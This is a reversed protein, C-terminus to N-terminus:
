AGDSDSRRGRGRRTAGRPRRWCRPVYGCGLRLCEDPGAPRKPFAEAGGAATALGLAYATDLLAAGDPTSRLAHVAPGGRLFMVEGDADGGLALRYAALQDAHHAAAVPTPLAYKYDRVVLRGARRAVLDMRGHIFVRPAGAPLPLVFPVERGVVELGAAIEARLAAAAARLDATLRAVAEAELVVSEPRAAVADRIDDGGARALDITELVGHAAKGLLTARTGGTGGEPLGLVQRYFFQRPCRRFDALATPTTVIETPAPPRFVLVRAVAAREADTAPAEAPAPPAGTESEARALFRVAAEIRVGGGGPLPLTGTAEEGDVFAGVRDRGLLEWVQHCWVDPDGDGRRLYATRGKGELLVLLDRARTCAVYLLRASEARTRERERRRHEELRAQRLPHLGAGAVPATVVGLTEDLVTTANDRELPRGLDVLVVVPFELGKAQHITMLRVVDDQEAVLQAEPERPEREALDRVARVFDRLTFLRRREFDRALEILKRVNAVKQEGQFQTLCVAEFDTAALAEELLEAITARSRLRRLRLLLDRIGLLEAAREGCDAFSEAARFRRALAPRRADAPWALRWLLDDDLAFLPSRLCAALAGADDPDAIAGLLSMVDRVEQCQFFGRGKVVYYPIGRRRLAYEYAKVQNLTRFLVAVDGYRVPEDDRGHLDAIVGALVRAELERAEGASLGRGAQERRAHERAFTVLRVAPPASTQERDAVLRQGDDFATWAQPLTADAPVRLTAAALANVFDLLAPQARFNRGLPLEAGLTVRVRQFVGVDAGRFGYISQKEDGVIFLRTGAGALATIVDAQAADTDQFEDVLIARLHRSYRERVGPHAALLRRAEAVLDDFTLVADARKRAEVADAIAAVLATLRRASPLAVLFGYEAPLVGRLRDDGELGLDAEVDRAIRASGLLRCLDALRGVEALPTAPTLALLRAEWEPWEERLRALGRGGEAALRAGVTAVVREAAARMTAAAEPALAEQRALAATLWAGDRGLRGLASVFRVLLGLAGGHRGSRLRHRALLERAGPDEARLRLVLADEVVGELWARSEHEDLIAAHPDVGAELPNERVVRACFAHITSIQAGLLERRVRAWRAGHDGRAQQLREAVLERIKRKMEAAAKETFTIALIQSVEDAIPPDGELLHLFRRALVTTKGSGAGARVAVSGEARIAVWQEATPAREPM